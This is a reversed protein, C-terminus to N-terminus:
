IDAKEDEDNLEKDFVGERWLLWEDLNESSTM